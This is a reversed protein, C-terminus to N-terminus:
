KPQTVRSPSQRHQWARCEKVTLQFILPDGSVVARQGGDGAVSWIDVRLARALKM